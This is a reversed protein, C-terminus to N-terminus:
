FTRAVVLSIMPVNKIVASLSVKQKHALCASDEGQNRTMRSARKTSRVKGM